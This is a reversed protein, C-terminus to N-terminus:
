NMKERFRSISKWDRYGEFALRGAVIGEPISIENSFSIISEDSYNHKKLFIEYENKPILVNRAFEDAEKEDDSVNKYKEEFDIFINKKSHKLIHCIEHFVTFWFIDTYKNRDSIQIM